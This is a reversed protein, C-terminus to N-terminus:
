RYCTIDSPLSQVNNAAKKPEWFSNFAKRVRTSFPEELNAAALTVSVATQPKQPTDELPTNALQQQMHDVVMPARSVNKTQKSFLGQSGFTSDSAQRSTNHIPSPYILANHNKPETLKISSSAYEEEEEDSDVDLLDPHYHVPKDIDNTKYTPTAKKQAKIPSQEQILNTPSEVEEDDDQCCSFCAYLCSCVFSAVGYLGYLIKGVINCATAIILPSCFAVLGLVFAQALPSGGLLAVGEGIIDNSLTDLLWFFAEGMLAPWINFSIVLALMFFAFLFATKGPLISKIPKFIFKFAQRLKLKWGSKPSAYSDYHGGALHFSEPQGPM